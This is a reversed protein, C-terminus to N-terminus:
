HLSDIHKSKPSLFTKNYVICQARQLALKPIYDYSGGHKNLLLPLVVCNQELLYRIIKNIEQRDCECVSAFRVCM